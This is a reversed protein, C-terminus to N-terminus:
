APTATLKCSGLGARRCQTETVKFERGFIESTVGAVIGHLFYCSRVKPKGACFVCNKLEFGVGEHNHEFQISLEGWGGSLAMLKLKELVVRPDSSHLKVEMAVSKGYERGLRVLFGSAAPSFNEFLDNEYQAWSKASFQLIKSGATKTLVSEELGHGSFTEM